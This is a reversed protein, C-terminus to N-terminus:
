EPPLGRFTLMVLRHVWVRRLRYADNTLTVRKHGSNSADSLLLRPAGTAGRHRDRVSMVKGLDSVFYGPFGAVAKWVDSM